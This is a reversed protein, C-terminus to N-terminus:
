NRLPFTLGIAFAGAFQEVSPQLYYALGIDVNHDPGLELGLAIPIHYIIGSKDISEFFTYTKFSGISTGIGIEAYPAIWPIPARLRAKGGMLFAKSETFEEGPNANANTFIFGAYPRFEVWSAAKLILEGQAFFGDNAVNSWTDYPATIAYGIQVSLSKEKIFQAKVAYSAMLCGLILFSKKM